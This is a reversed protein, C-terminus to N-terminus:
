SNRVEFDYRHSDGAVYEFSIEILQDYQDYVTSKVVIVAANKKVGLYDALQQSAKLAGMSRKALTPKIDYDTQLIQYLSCTTFDYAELGPFRDILVNNEIYTYPVNDAYRVRSLHFCHQGEDLNLERFLRPEYPKLSSDIVQVSPKRNMIIMEEQFSLVQHMFISNDDMGKVFTGRGRGRVIRGEKLLDTYAQRVVIRSIDFTKCIAEETPLKDNAKLTGNNIAEVIAKRLQEHLPIKSYKSITIYSLEM